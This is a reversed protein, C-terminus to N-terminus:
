RLAVTERSTWACSRLVPAACPMNSTKFRTLTEPLVSLVRGTAPIVRIGAASARRIASATLDDVDARANLLTGDLDVAVVDVKALLEEFIDGKYVNNPRVSVLPM